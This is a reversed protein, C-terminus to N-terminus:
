LGGAYNTVIMSHAGRERLNQIRWQLYTCLSFYQAKHHLFITSEGMLEGEM